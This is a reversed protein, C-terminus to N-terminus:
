DRPCGCNEVWVVGNDQDMALGGASVGAPMAIAHREQSPLDFRVVQAGAAVWISGFGIQADYIHDGGIGLPRGPEGTAADLPIVTGAGPDVLWLTTGDSSDVGALYGEEKLQVTLTVKGKRPDFRLIQGNDCDCIWVYGVLPVVVAPAFADVKYRNIVKARIPDIEVLDAQRSVYWLTRPGASVDALQGPLHITDLVEASLPDVKDLASGRMGLERAVWGYGFAFGMGEGTDLEHTEVVAGTKPDRRVLLEDTAQWLSTGEFQVAGPRHLSQYGDRLVPGVVNTEPDIKMVTVPKPGAAAQSPASKRTLAVIGVTAAVLAVAAAVAITRRRRVLPVPQIGEFREIAEHAPLPEALERDDVKAVAFVQWTGPVGKLEHASFDEFEIGSGTVLDKTTSTVLVDGAGGLSMVRAGIVVAMGGRKGDVSETEGTHVGSRIEVGLERVREALACACRVAQGPHQFTVFYGDGATDEEHGAFRKIEARVIRNFRMLLERSRADGIRATIATSGVMDLFLVTQLRRSQQPM